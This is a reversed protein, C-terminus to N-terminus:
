RSELQARLWGPRNTTIGDIGAARLRRAAEPDDVTWVYCKLGADHVQRIFAADLPGKGSLNLGDLGAEKAQRILEAATPRWAGTQKDQKFSSLFLLRADPFRKKAAACVDLHFSIILLRRHPTGAARLVRALEPLIEPGCKVEIVLGKDPPMLPLVDALKPIREGKWQPGKWAGADLAALQAATAAAVELRAGTVRETDPDHLCVIQGDATQWVDLEVADAGQQWGLKFAALTNEPADHSAGRHAIIQPPRM